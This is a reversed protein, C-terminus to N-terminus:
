EIEYFDLAANLGKSVSIGVSAQGVTDTQPLPEPKDPPGSSQGMGGPKTKLNELIPTKPTVPSWTSRQIEELEDYDIGYPHTNRYAEIAAAVFATKYKSKVASMYEAAQAHHENDRNFRIHYNTQLSPKKKRM